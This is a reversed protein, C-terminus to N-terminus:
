LELISEPFRDMIHILTEYKVKLIKKDHAAKPKSFVQAAKRTLDNKSFETYNQLDYEPDYLCNCQSCLDGAAEIKSYDGALHGQRFDQYRRNNWISLLSSDKVNGASYSLNVDLPCISVEGDHNIVINEWPIRCIPRKRSKCKLNDLTIEESIGSYGSLNLLSSFFISSVPISEFFSRYKELGSENLDQPIVSLTSFTPSGAEYNMKLYNMMNWLTTEFNAGVRIKEYEEKIISDFSFVIRDLKLEILKASLDNSLRTGNTLVSTFVGKFKAYSVMEMFDKHLMPEGQNDLTIECGYESIEDIIKKYVDLEM